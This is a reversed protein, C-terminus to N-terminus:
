EFINQGDFLQFGWWAYMHARACVCVRVFACIHAHVYMLLCVCIHMYVYINLCVHMHVCLVCICIQVNTYMYLIHMCVYACMCMHVYVYVCMQAYMHLCIHVHIYTYVHIHVYACMCKHMTNSFALAVKGSMTSVSLLYVLHSEPFGLRQLPVLMWCATTGSWTPQSTTVRGKPSIFGLWAYFITSFTKGQGAASHNTHSNVGMPEHIKVRPGLSITSSPSAISCKPPLAESPSPTRSTEYGPMM